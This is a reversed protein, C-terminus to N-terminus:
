SGLVMSSAIKTGGVQDWGVVVKNGVNFSTLSFGYPLDYTAGDSLTVTMKKLDLATIFGADRQVGVNPQAIAATGLGLTAVILVASTIKTFM